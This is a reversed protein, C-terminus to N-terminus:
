KILLMKLTKSYINKSDKSKVTISYFYVGTSLNKPLWVVDYHGAGKTGENFEEVKQGIPNYIIIEVTSEYPLAYKITTSPNFPNPYNQFLIYKNLIIEVEAEKSYEYQGDNDIQKLRYKFKTGGTLDKDTFSYVKPSNSNGHGQVFGIKQWQLDNQESASNDVRKEIEFGYNNVETATEWEVVVEASKIAAAFSTLEVPLPGTFVSAYITVDPKTNIPTETSRFVNAPVGSAYDDYMEVSFSEITGTTSGQDYDEIFIQNNSNSMYPIFETIDIVMPNNPFPYNGGKTCFDSLSKRFSPSIPDGIGLDLLNNGRYKHNINIVAVMQPVYHELNQYLNTNKIRQKMCEYSIYYFGDAINEWGGVGWSNAVKFAGYTNSNGSETFPGYNDDYGVITNEHNTSSPNYNDVTWLDGPGLNLRHLFSTNVAILGLNGNSLIKKFDEIGIDTDVWMLAVYWGYGPQSRYWPAQRWASEDPWTTNDSPNYPMKDWTCCGINELILENRVIDTFGNRGLNLLHYIFAPSFIKDQYSTSPHGNSWVCGSLDWNHEKAEQFTKTYYGCAWSVCSNQIGQDGIPPFWITTSNDYSTPITETGFPYEIKDVVLQQKRMKEWEEETPPMLGTGHGNIVQNYNKGKEYTGVLSKYKKFESDTMVRKILKTEQPYIIFNSPLLFILFVINILVYATFVKKMTYGM